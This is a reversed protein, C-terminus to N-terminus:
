GAEGLRLSSSSESSRPALRPKAICQQLRLQRARETRQAAHVGPWPAWPEDSQPVAGAAM